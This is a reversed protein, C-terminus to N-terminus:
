LIVKFFHFVSQNVVTNGTICITLDTEVDKCRELGFARAKRLETGLLFGYGPNSSHFSESIAVTDALCHGSALM